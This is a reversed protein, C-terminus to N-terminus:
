GETVNAVYCQLSKYQSLFRRCAPVYSTLNYIIIAVTRLLSCEGRPWECRYVNFHYFNTLLICFDFVSGVDKERFLM